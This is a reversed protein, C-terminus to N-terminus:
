NIYSVLVLILLIKMNILLKKIIKLRIRKETKGWKTYIHIYQKM